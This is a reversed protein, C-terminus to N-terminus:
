SSVTAPRMCPKAGYKECGAHPNVTGAPASSRSLAMWSDALVGTIAPAPPALAPVTWNPGPADTGVVTVSPEVSVNRLHLVCEM